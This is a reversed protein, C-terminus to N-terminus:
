LTYEEIYAKPINIGEEILYEMDWRELGDTWREYQVGMDKLRQFDAPNDLYMSAGWEHITTEFWAFQDKLWAPDNPYQSMEWGAFLSEPTMLFKKIEPSLRYVDVYTIDKTPWKHAVKTLNTGPWQPDSRTKIRDKAFRERIGEWSERRRKPMTESQMHSFVFMVADSRDIAYQMMNRFVDGVQDKTIVIINEFNIDKM